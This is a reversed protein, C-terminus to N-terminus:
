CNLYEAKVGKLRTPLASAPAISLHCILLSIVFWARNQFRRNESARM